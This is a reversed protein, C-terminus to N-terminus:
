VDRLAKRVSEAVAPAELFFIIKHCNERNCAVMHKSRLARRISEELALYCHPCGHMAKLADGTSIVGDRFFKGPRPVQKRLNAFVGPFMEDDAKSVKAGPQRSLKVMWLIRDDLSEASRVEACMQPALSLAAQEVRAFIESKLAQSALQELEAASRVDWGFRLLAEKLISGPVAVSRLRAVAAAVMAIGVAMPRLSDRVADRYEFRSFTDLWNLVPLLRQDDAGLSTLSIRLAHAAAVRALVDANDAKPNEALLRPIAQILTQLSTNIDDREGYKKESEEEKVDRLGPKHPTPGTVEGGSGRSTKAGGNLWRVFASLADDYRVSLGGRGHGVHGSMEWQLFSFPRDVVDKPGVDKPETSPRPIPAAVTGRPNTARLLLHLLAEIDEEQFDGRLIHRVSRREKREDDSIALEEAVNLWCSARLAGATLELQVARESAIEGVPGFFFGGEADVEIERTQGEIAVNARIIKATVVSVPSKSGFLRGRVIGNSNLTADLYAFDLSQAEFAYKNPEFSVPETEAWQFCPKSLRRALSGEINKISELSQQTANISGTVILM